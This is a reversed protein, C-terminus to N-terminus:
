VPFRGIVQNYSEQVDALAIRSYIELSTTRRANGDDLSGTERAVATTHGAARAARIIPVMPDFHGPGAALCLLIRM